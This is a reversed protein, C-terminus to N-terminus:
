ISPLNFAQYIIMDHSLHFFFIYCNTLRLTFSPLKTKDLPEITFELTQQKHFCMIPHYNKGLIYQQIVLIM